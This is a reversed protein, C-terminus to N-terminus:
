VFRCMRPMPGCRTSTIPTTEKRTRTCSSGTQLAPVTARLPPSFSSLTSYMFLFYVFFFGFLWFFFFFFFFCLFVVFFFFFLLVFCFCFCFFFGVFLFSIHRIMLTQEHPSAFFDVSLNCIFMDGIWVDHVFIVLCSVCWIM